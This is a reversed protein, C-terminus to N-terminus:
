GVTLEVSALKETIDSKFIADGRHPGVVKSSEVFTNLCCYNMNYGRSFLAELLQNLITQLITLM